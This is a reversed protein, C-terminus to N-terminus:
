LDDDTHNLTFDDDPTETDAPSDYEVVEEKEETAGVLAELVASFKFRYTNGIKIYAGPPIRKSRVWVRITPVTVSFRNAVESIPVYPELTPTTM